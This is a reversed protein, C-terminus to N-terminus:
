FHPGGSHKGQMHDGGDHLMTTLSGCLASIFCSVALVTVDAGREGHYRSVHWSWLRGGDLTGAAVSPVGAIFSM